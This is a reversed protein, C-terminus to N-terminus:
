TSLFKFVEAAVLSPAQITGVHGIGPLTTTKSGVIDNALSLTHPAPILRDESGALVLTRSKVDGLHCRVPKAAIAARRKKQEDTRKNGTFINLAEPHEQIYADPFFFRALEPLSGPLKGRLEAIKPAGAPNIEALPMGVRFTSSLILRDVRSPHRTALLQAIVGGLSTGFVHARAYGLAAIMEGVDDALDDFGYTRDPNGTAGSDRQDPAIVTFRSALEAGFADFMSHDAEAGHLLVIPPGGGIRKFANSVGNAEIREIM